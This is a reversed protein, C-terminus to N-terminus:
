GLLMFTVRLDRMFLNKDVKDSLLYVALLVIGSHTHYWAYSIRSLPVLAKAALARRLLSTRDRLLRYGIVVNIIAWVLRYFGHHIVCIILPAEILALPSYAVGIALAVLLWDVLQSKKHDIPEGSRNYWLVGGFMGTFYACARIEPRAYFSAIFNTKALNFDLLPSNTIPQVQMIVHYLGTEINLTRAISMTAAVSGIIVGIIIAKLHKPKKPLLVLFLLGFLYLQWDVDLYWTWPTCDLGKGDNVINSILLLSPLWHNRCTGHAGNFASLLVNRKTVSLQALLQPDVPKTLASSLVFFALVGFLRIYRKVILSFAIKFRGFISNSKQLQPLATQILVFGSLVFFTDVLCFGCLALKAPLPLPIMRTKATATDLSTLQSLAVHGFHVAFMGLVRVGDIFNMAPNGVRPPNWLALWDDRLM